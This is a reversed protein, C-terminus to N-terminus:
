GRGCMRFVGPQSTSVGWPVCAPVWFPPPFCPGAGAAGAAGAPPSAARRHGRVDGSSSQGRCRGTGLVAGPQELQRHTSAHFDWGALSMWASIGLVPVRVHPLRLACGLVPWPAPSFVPSSPHQSAPIHFTVCPRASGHTRLCAALEPAQLHCCTLFQAALVPLGVGVGRAKTETM